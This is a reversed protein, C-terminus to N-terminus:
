LGVKEIVHQALYVLLGILLAGAGVYIRDRFREHGDHRKDQAEFRKDHNDLRVGHRAVEKEIEDM